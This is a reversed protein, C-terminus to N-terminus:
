LLIVLGESDAEGVLAELGVLDVRGRVGQLDGLLLELLHVVVHNRHPIAATLGKAKIEVLRM